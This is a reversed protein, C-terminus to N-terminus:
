IIGSLNQWFLMFIAQNINFIKHVQFELLDSFSIIVIDKWRKNANSEHLSVM